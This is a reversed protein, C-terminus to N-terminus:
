TIQQEEQEQQQQQIERAFEAYESFHDDSLGDQSLMCYIEDGFLLGLSKGDAIVYHECPYTEFCLNSVKYRPGINRYSNIDM